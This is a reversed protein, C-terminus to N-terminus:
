HAMLELDALLGQPDVNVLHELKDLLVERELRVGHELPDLPVLQDEHVAKEKPEPQDQPVELDVLDVHDLQAPSALPDLHDLLDEKVKSEMPAMLVVSVLNDPDEKNALLDLLVKHDLEDMLVLGELDVVSERLALKVM